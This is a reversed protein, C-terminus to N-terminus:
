YKFSKTAFLHESPFEVYSLLLFPAIGVSVAPPYYDRGSGLWQLPKLYNRTCRLFGILLAVTWSKIYLFNIWMTEVFPLLVPELLVWAQPTSILFYAWVNATECLLCNLHSWSNLFDIRFVIFLESLHESCEIVWGSYYFRPSIQSLSWLAKLGIDLQTYSTKLWGRVSPLM